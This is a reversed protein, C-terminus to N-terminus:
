IRSWLKRALNGVAPTYFFYCWLVWSTLLGYFDPRSYHWWKLGAIIPLEAVPAGVACLCGLFFGQRTRDFVAWNLVAFCALAAHIYIYQWQHEYMWASFETGCALVGYNLAVTGWSPAPRIDKALNDTLPHLTGTSVM